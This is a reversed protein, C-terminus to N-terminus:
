RSCNERQIEEVTRGVLGRSCSLISNIKKPDGWIGPSDYPRDPYAGYDLVIDLNNKRIFSEIQEALTVPRGTCCNVIGDVETQLSACAIMHALEQVTMFDYANKGNTFPFKKQGAKAARYLKGFISQSDEDDGYVYFGRLWQFIFKEQRAKLLMVRRLADKAIGYPTMPNCPTDDRVAGEWYGIEHMSGMVSLHKVGADLVNCLFRYHSSLDLMHSPDNHKFGNRWALHICVDPPEKFLSGVDFTNDLIDAVKYDVRKDSSLDDGLLKSSESIDVAIVTADMSLLEKVVHRGIYGSSGTVLARAM